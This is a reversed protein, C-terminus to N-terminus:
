HIGFGAANNEVLISSVIGTAATGIIDPCAVITCLEPTQSVIDKVAAAIRKGAASWGDIEQAVPVTVKFSLNQITIGIRRCGNRFHSCVSFQGCEECCVAIIGAIGCLSCRTQRGVQKTVPSFFQNYPCCVAFGNPDIARGIGGAATNGRQHMVWLVAILHCSLINGVVLRRMGAEIKARVLWHRFSWIHCHVAVTSWNFRRCWNTRGSRDHVGADFIHEFIDAALFIQFNSITGCFISGIHLLPTCITKCCM